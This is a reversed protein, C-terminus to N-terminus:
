QKKELRWLEILKAYKIYSNFCGISIHVLGPLGDLFGRRICYFKIFRFLPSFVLKGYGVHKGRNYLAQAQLDTYRNQKTLYLSIDEGSEHMLDYHLNNVTGNAIVYEHVVDDSWRAKQRNFLRLNLDPYGEGHKLFRGMFKNTRPFRYADAQPNNKIKKIENSLDDSLWEDADLCLVWDHQAQNVAFQKQPGFGLWDQHIVKVNYRSAIALTEDTSGSDVMIIEDLWSVSKLCKELHAAANKTILVVSISIRM